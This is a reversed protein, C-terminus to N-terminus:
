VPEGEKTLAMRAARAPARDTVVPIKEFNYEPPPSSVTWELTYGGNWADSDAPVHHRASRIMNYVMIAVSIGMIIGGATALMNLGTWGRDASYDYIRRPMGELGLIHMPFYTIHFGIFLTWFQIKGLKEDLKYGFMKPWWYYLGAFIGFAAGGFVVYHLHAV